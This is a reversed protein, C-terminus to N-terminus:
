SPDQKSDIDIASGLMKQLHGGLEEAQDHIELLAKPILERMGASDKSMLFLRTWERIEKAAKEQELRSRDPDNIAKAWMEIADPTIRSLIELVTIQDKYFRHLAESAHKKTWSKYAENHKEYTERANGPTLGLIQDIASFPKRTFERILSIIELKLALKKEHQDAGSAKQRAKNARDLHVKGGTKSRRNLRSKADRRAAKAAEIESESV